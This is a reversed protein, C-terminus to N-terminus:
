ILFLLCKKLFINKEFRYRTVDEEMIPPAELALILERGSRQATILKCKQLINQPVDGRASLKPLGSQWDYLAVTNYEDMGITILVDGSTSFSLQSIGREHFGRITCLTQCTAVDWVLIKPVRGREGTAVIRGNPHLAIATM